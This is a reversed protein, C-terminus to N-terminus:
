VALVSYRAVDAFFSSIHIISVMALAIAYDEHSPIRVINFRTYLRLGVTILALAPFLTVLVLTGGGKDAALYVASLQPSEMPASM